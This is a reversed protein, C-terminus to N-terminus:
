NRVKQVKLYEWVNELILAKILVAEKLILLIDQVDNVIIIQHYETVRANKLLKKQSQVMISIFPGLARIVQSANKPKTEEVHRTHNIYLCM